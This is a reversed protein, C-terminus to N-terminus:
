IHILSLPTGLNTTNSSSQDTSISPTQSGPNGWSLKLNWSPHNNGTTYKAANANFVIRYSDRICM